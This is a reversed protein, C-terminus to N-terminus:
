NWWGPGGGGPGSGGGHGGGGPGNSQGVVTTLSSSTFTGLQTGATYTGDEYWGNWNITNDSLSGGSYVTYSENAPPVSLDMDETIGRIDVPTCALATFLALVSIDDTSFPIQWKSKNLYNSQNPKCDGLAINVIGYDIHRCSPTHIRCSDEM